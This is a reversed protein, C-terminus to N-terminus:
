GLRMRVPETPQQSKSEIGSVYGCTNPGPANANQRRFLEFIAPAATPAPSWLVGEAGVGATEVAGDWPLASVLAPALFACLSFSSLM